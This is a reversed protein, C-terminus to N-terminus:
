ARSAPVSDEFLSNGSGELGKVWGGNAALHYENMRVLMRMYCNSTM